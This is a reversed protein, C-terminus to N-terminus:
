NRGFLRPYDRAGDVIRLVEIGDDIPLYIVVWRKFHFIRYGDGLHPVAAGGQPTAAYEGCKGIMEDILREATLPRQQEVAIYHAIELLDEEASPTRLLRPM